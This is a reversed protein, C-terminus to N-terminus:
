TSATPGRTSPTPSSGRATPASRRWCSPSRRRRSTAPCCSATTSRSATTTSAHHRAGAAPTIVVGASTHLSNEPKLPQAGLVQAAASDVPLTLSEVPVLGQGSLQRLQDRDVLLVVPRAVARPLRHQALRARRLAPRAAVRATLKGDVTNGFDSYHETRGAVGLRLWALVDGEVDVYGAVSNRSEDVENSPRFGPFVQAGIAARGGFQNPCAATATRTRSAPASRITRAATSPASRSTSRVPWGGSRSRRPQRRRQRRVPEAGADGADFETKNPPM